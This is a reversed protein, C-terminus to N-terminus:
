QSSCVAGRPASASMLEFSAINDICLIAFKEVQGAYASAAHHWAGRTLAVLADVLERVAWLVKLEAASLQEDELMFFDDDDDDLTRADPTASPQSSSTQPAADTSSANGQQLSTDRATDSASSAAANVSDSKIAARADNSAAAHTTVHCSSSAAAVPAGTASGMAAVGASLADEYLENLERANDQVIAAIM